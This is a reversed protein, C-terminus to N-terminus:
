HLYLCYQYMCKNNLIHYYYICLSSFPLYLSLSHPLTILHSKGYPRWTFCIQSSLLWALVETCLPLWASIGSSSCKLWLSFCTCFIIVDKLSMEVTLIASALSLLLPILPLSLSLPSPCILDPQVQGLSPPWITYLLLFNHDSRDRYPFVM